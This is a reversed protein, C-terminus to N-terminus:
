QPMHIWNMRVKTNTLIVFIVALFIWDMSLEDDEPSFDVYQKEKGVRCHRILSTNIHNALHTVTALGLRQNAWIGPSQSMYSGDFLKNGQSEKWIRDATGFV